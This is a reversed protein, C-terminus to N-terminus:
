DAMDDMAGSLLGAFGTYLAVTSALNGVLRARLATSNNVLTDPRRSGEGPFLKRYDEEM